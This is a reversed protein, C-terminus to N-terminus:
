LLNPLLIRNHKDVKRLLSRGLIDCDVLMSNDMQASPGQKGVLTTITESLTIFCNQLIENVDVKNCFYRVAMRLCQTLCLLESESARGNVHDKRAQVIWNVILVCSINIHEVPFSEQVLKLLNKISNPIPEALNSFCAIMEAFSNYNDWQGLAGSIVYRFVLDIHSQGLMRLYIGAIQVFFLRRNAMQAPSSPDKTARILHRFMHMEDGALMWSHLYLTPDQTYSEQGLTILNRYDLTNALKRIFRSKPKKFSISRAKICHLSIKTRSENDKEKHTLFENAWGHWCTCVCAMKSLALYDVKAFIVFLVENPLDPVIQKRKTLFAKKLQNWGKM